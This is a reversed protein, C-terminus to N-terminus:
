EPHRREFDLSHWGFTKFITDDHMEELTRHLYKRATEPTAPVIVDFGPVQLDLEPINGRFVFDQLFIRKMDDIKLNRVALNGHERVWPLLRRRLGASWRRESAFGQLISALMLISLSNGVSPLAFFAGYYYNFGGRVPPNVIVLTIWFASIAFGVLALRVANPPHELPEHREFDYTPDLRRLGGNAGMVTFVGAVVSLPIWNYLFFVVEVPPLASLMVQVLLASVSATIGFTTLISLPSNRFISEIETKPRM